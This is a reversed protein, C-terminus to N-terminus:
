FRRATKRSILVPLMRLCIHGRANVAAPYREVISLLANQFGLQCEERTFRHRRADFGKRFQGKNPRPAQTSDAELM